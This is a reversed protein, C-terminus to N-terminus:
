TPRFCDSHEILSETSPTPLAGLIHLHVGERARPLVPALKGPMKKAKKRATTVRALAAARKAILANTGAQLTRREQLESALRTQTRQHESEGM